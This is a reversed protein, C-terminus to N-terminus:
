HAPTLSTLNTTVQVAPPANTAPALHKLRQTQRRELLRLERDLSTLTRINAAVYILILALLAMVIIVASASQHRRPRSVHFTFRSVNPTPLKM